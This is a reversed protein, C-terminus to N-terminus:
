CSGQPQNGAWGFILVCSCTDKFNSDLITWIGLHHNSTSQKYYSNGFITEYCNAAKRRKIQCNLLSKHKPRNTPFFLLFLVFFCYFCHYHSCKGNSGSKGSTTTRASFWAEKATAPAATSAWSLMAAPVSSAGHTGTGSWPSSCSATQLEVEVDQARSPWPGGVAVWWHWQQCRSGVTWWQLRFVLRSTFSLPCHINYKLPFM